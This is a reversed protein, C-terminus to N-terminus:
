PPRDKWTLGNDLSVALSAEAADLKVIAAERDDGTTAPDGVLPAIVRAECKSSRTAMAPNELTLGTPSLRVNASDHM